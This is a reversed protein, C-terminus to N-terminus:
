KLMRILIITLLLEPQIQPQRHTPQRMQWIPTTSKALEKLLM